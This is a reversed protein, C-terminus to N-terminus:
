EGNDSADVVIPTTDPDGPPAVVKLSPINIGGVLEEVPVSNVRQNSERRGEASRVGVEIVDLLLGLPWDLVDRPDCKFRDSCMLIYLIDDGDITEETIEVTPDGLLKDVRSLNKGLVTVVASLSKTLEEEPRFGVGTWEQLMDELVYDLRGDGISSLFLSLAADSSIPEELRARAERLAGIEAGFVELARFFSRVTPPSKLLAGGVVRPKTWLLDSMAM